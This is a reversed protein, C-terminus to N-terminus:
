TVEPDDAWASPPSESPDPAVPEDEWRCGNLWTSAHPIFQLETGAAKWAAVQASLARAMATIQADSLKLKDWAKVAAKRGIHRPYFEWFGVFRDPKHKPLSVPLDTPEDGEQPVIPPNTLREKTLDKNQQTPNESTPEVSTPKVTTPFGSLPPASEEPPIKSEPSIDYIYGGFRGGDRHEQHRTLYGAQELEKLSTRITDKGVGIYSALGSISYEWDQPLSWLVAFLGKTKLSLRTDRLASNQLVTFGASRKLRVMNEAM